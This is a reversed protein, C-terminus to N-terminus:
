RGRTGVVPSSIKGDTTSIVAGNAGFDDKSLGNVFPLARLDSDLVVLGGNVMETAILEGGSWTGDKHLSVKLIGGVGSYGSTGLTKYGCFNGLSYAILRGKYFEMGRMVHPGHGFVVDAGADVVAHAFKILDGRPECM